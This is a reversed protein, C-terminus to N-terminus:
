SPDLNLRYGCRHVTEIMDTGIKRRLRQIHVDVTRTVGASKYGWVDKLLSDRSLTTDPNEMLAELLAAEQNTLSINKGNISVENIDKNLKIYNM